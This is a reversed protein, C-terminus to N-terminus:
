IFFRVFIFATYSFHNAKSIRDIQYLLILRCDLCDTEKAIPKPSIHPLDSNGALQFTSYYFEITAHKPLISVLDFVLDIASLFSASVIIV